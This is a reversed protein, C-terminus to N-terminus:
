NKKVFTIKKFIIFQFFFQFNPVNKANKELVNRIKGKM